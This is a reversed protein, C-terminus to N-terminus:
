SLDSSKWVQEFYENLKRIVNNESVLIGANFQGILSDQTLDASSVLAENGDSIIIRSHVLENIRHNKGINKHIHEFAQKADKGSFEKRSRTIVYIHLGKQNKELLLSILSMDIYPTILKLENKANSIIRRVDNSLSQDFPPITTVADFKSLTEDWEEWISLKISKSDVFSFHNDMVFFLEVDNTIDLEFEDRSVRGSSSYLYDDPERIVNTGSSRGLHLLTWKGLQCGGLIYFKIDLDKRGQPQAVIYEGWIRHNAKNSHNIKHSHFRISNNSAPVEIMDNFIQIKKHRDIM